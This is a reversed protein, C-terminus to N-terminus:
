RSGRAPVRVARAGPRLLAEDALKVPSAPLSEQGFVTQLWSTKSRHHPRFAEYTSLGYVMRLHRFTMDPHLYTRVFANLERDLELEQSVLRNHATVIRRADGLVPIVYPDMDVLGAKVQGQFRVHSADVYQFSGKQLIEIRRRGTLVGLAVTIEIDDTGRVANRAWEIIPLASVRISTRSTRRRSADNLRDIEDYEEQELKINSLYEPAIRLSAVFARDRGDTFAEPDGLECRKKMILQEKLSMRAFAVLETRRRGSTISEGWENLSREYAPHFRNQSLLAAKLKGVADRRSYVNDYYDRIEDVASAATTIGSMIEYALREIM